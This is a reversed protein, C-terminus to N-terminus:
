LIGSRIICVQKLRPIGDDSGLADIKKVVDLSTADAVEGLFVLHDKLCLFFPLFFHLSLAIFSSEGFVVQFGDLWHVASMTIYFQSRSSNPGTGVM